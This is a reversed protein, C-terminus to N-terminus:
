IDDRETAALGKTMPCSFLSALFARPFGFLSSSNVSHEVVAIM